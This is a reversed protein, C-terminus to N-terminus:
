YNGHSFSDFSSFQENVVFSGTELYVALKSGISYRRVYLLGSSSKCYFCYFTYDKVLVWFVVSFVQPFEFSGSVGNPPLTIVSNGEPFYAGRDTGITNRLSDLSSKGNVSFLYNGAYDYFVEGFNQHFKYKMLDSGRVGVLVVLFVGLM